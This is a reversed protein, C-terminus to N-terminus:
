VYAKRVCGNNKKKLTFYVAIRWIHVQIEINRQRM